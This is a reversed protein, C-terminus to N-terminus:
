SIAVFAAAAIIIQLYFDNFNMKNISDISRAYIIENIFTIKIIYDFSNSLDNFNVFNSIM